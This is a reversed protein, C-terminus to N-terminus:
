AASPETRRRCSPSIAPIRKKLISRMPHLKMRAKRSMSADYRDELYLSATFYGGRDVQDPDTITLRFEGNNLDTKDPDPELPRVDAAYAASMCLVLLLAFLVLTLFRIRKM